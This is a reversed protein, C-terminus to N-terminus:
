NAYINFPSQNEVFVNQNILGSNSILSCKRYPCIVSDRNTFFLDPNGIIYKTANTSWPM